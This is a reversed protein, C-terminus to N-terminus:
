DTRIQEPTNMPSANTKKEKAANINKREKAKTQEVDTVVEEERKYDSCYKHCTYKRSSTILYILFNIITGSREYHTRMKSDSCKIVTSCHAQYIRWPYVDESKASHMQDKNEYVQDAM